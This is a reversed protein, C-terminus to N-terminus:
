WFQGNSGAYLGRVYQGNHNWNNYAVAPYAGGWASYASVAPYAGGWASYASVAPYGAYTSYVQPKPEAFAVALLAFFVM